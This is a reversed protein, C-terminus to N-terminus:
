SGTEEKRASSAAVIVQAERLTRDQWRYGRVIEEVVTNPSASSETSQGLAHMQEPDFPLGKAPLPVVQHQSLVGLMSERIMEIGARASTVVETLSESHPPTPTSASSNGLWGKLLQKWRQWGSPPTTAVLQTQNQEAQQWHDAARDLADAVTLLDRLLTEQQKRLQIRQNALERPSPKSLPMSSPQPSRAAGSSTFQTM